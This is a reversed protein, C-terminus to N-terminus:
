TARNPSPLLPPRLLALNDEKGFHGTSLLTRRSNKRKGEQQTLCSWTHIVGLILSVGMLLKEPFHLLIAMCGSRIMFAECFQDTLKQRKVRFSFALSFTRLTLRSSRPYLWFLREETDRCITRSVRTERSTCRKSIKSPHWNLTWLESIPSRTGARRFTLVARIRRGDIEELGFIEVFASISVWFEELESLHSINEIEEIMNNGVDLTRLKTQDDTASGSPERRASSM